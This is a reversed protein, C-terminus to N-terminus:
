LARRYLAVIEDETPVRPNMAASGSAIADRAMQPALEMLREVPLGAGSLTPVNLKECFDAIAAVFRGAALEASDRAVDLGFAEAITKFREPLAPATYEMVVPLLMANSLGHAVGFYAGIPRSM